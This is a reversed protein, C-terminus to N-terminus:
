KPPLEASMEGSIPKPGRKQPGRLERIADRSVHNKSFVQRALEVIEPETFTAAEPNKGFESWWVRLKAAPVPPKRADSEELHRMEDTSGIGIMRRLDDVCFEVGYAKVKFSSFSDFCRAEFQSLSWDGHGSGRPEAVERWFNRGLEVWEKRVERGSSLQLIALTARERVCGDAAWEAIVRGMGPSPTMVEMLLHRAEKATVWGVVTDDQM